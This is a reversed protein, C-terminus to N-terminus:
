SERPVALSLSNHLSYLRRFNRAGQHTYPQEQLSPIDSSGIPRRAEAQRRTRVEHSGLRFALVAPASASFSSPPPNVEQLVSAQGLVFATEVSFMQVLGSGGGERM